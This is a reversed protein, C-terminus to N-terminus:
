QATTPSIIALSPCSLPQDPIITYPAIRSLSCISAMSKQTFASPVLGRLLPLFLRPRISTGTVKPLTRKTGPCYRYLSASPMTTESCASTGYCRPRRTAPLRLRQAGRIRGPVPEGDPENVPLLATQRRDSVDSSGPT